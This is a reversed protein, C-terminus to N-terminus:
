GAPIEALLRRSGTQGPHAPKPRPFCGAGRKPLYDGLFTRQQKTLPGASEDFLLELSTRMLTLPTRVEHSLMSLRDSRVQLNDELNARARIEKERQWAWATTIATLILWFILEPIYSSLSTLNSYQAYAICM